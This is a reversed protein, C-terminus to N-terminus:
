NEESEIVVVPEQLQAPINLPDGCFRCKIAEAKVLEAAIVIM